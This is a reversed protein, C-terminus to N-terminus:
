HLEPIQNSHKYGKIDKKFVCHSDYCLNKIFFHHIILFALLNQNYKFFEFQIINPHDPPINIKTERINTLKEGFVVPSCSSHPEFFLYFM